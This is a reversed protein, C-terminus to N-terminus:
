DETGNQATATRMGNDASPDSEVIDVRRHIVVFGRVGHERSPADVRGVTGTVVAKMERSHPGVRPLFIQCDLDVGSPPCTESWLFSGHLSIDRTVGEGTGRMSDSGWVFTVPASITYRVSKRLNGM